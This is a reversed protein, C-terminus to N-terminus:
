WVPLGSFSPPSFGGALVTALEIASTKDASHSLNTALTFAANTYIQADQAARSISVYALRSNDPILRRKEYVHDLLRSNVVELLGHLSLDAHIHHCDAAWKHVVVGDFNVRVLNISSGLLPVETPDRYFQIPDYRAGPGFSDFPFVHLLVRPGDSVPIPTRCFKDSGQFVVRHPGFWSREVRIILVNSGSCSVNRMNYRILPDIGSNAM